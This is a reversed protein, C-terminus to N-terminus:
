SKEIYIIMNDAFYEDEIKNVHMQNLFDECVKMKNNYAHAVM